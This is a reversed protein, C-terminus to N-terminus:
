AVMEEDETFFWALPQGSLAARAKLHRVDRLLVDFEVVAASM